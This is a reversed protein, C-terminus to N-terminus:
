AKVTYLAVWALILVWPVLSWVLRDSLFGPLLSKGATSLALDSLDEELVPDGEAMGKVLTSARLVGLRRRQRLFTLYLGSRLGLEREVEDRRYEAVRLALFIRRLLFWWGVALLSAVGGVLTIVRSTDALGPKLTVSMFALGVMSLGVLVLGSLWVRQMLQAASGDLLEYEVMLVQWRNRPPVSMAAEEGPLEERPESAPRQRGAEAASYSEATERPNWSRQPTQVAGEARGNGTGRPSRTTM